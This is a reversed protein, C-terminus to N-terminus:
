LKFHVVSSVDIKAIMEFHNKKMLATDEFHHKDM